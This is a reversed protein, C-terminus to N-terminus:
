VKTALVLSEKYFTVDESALYYVLETQEEAQSNNASHARKERSSPDASSQM